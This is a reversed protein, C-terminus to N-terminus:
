LPKECLASNYTLDYYIIYGYYDGSVALIRRAGDKQTVVDCAVDAMSTWPLNSHHSWSNSSVTYYYVESRKNGSDYGGVSYIRDYGYDAAICNQRISM